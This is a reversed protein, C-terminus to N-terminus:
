PPIDGSAGSRPAPTTGDWTDAHSPGNRPIGQARPAARTQTRSRPPPPPPTADGVPRVDLNAHISVGRVLAWAIVALLPGFVALAALYLGIM